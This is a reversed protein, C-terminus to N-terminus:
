LPCDLDRDDSAEIRGGNHDVVSTSIPGQNPVVDLELTHDCRPDSHIYM